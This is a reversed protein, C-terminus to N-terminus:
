GIGQKVPAHNGWFGNGYSTLLEQRPSIHNTTSIQVLISDPDQLLICNPKAGSYHGDNIYTFPCSRSGFLYITKSEIKPKKLTKTCGEVRPDIAVARTLEVPEPMTQLHDPLTNNKNLNKPVWAYIGTYVGLTTNPPIARNAFLGHGAHPLTSVDIALGMSEALLKARTLLPLHNPQTYLHPPYIYLDRTQLWSLIEASAANIVPASSYSEIAVTAQLAAKRKQPPRTAPTPALPRQSSDTLHSDNNKFTSNLITNM